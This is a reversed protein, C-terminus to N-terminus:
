AVGPWAFAGRIRRRWIENVGHEVVRGIASTAHIIGVDTVIAVHQPEKDFAMWLVDGLRAEPVPIGVLERALIGGMARPDPSRGYGTADFCTLGLAKGVCAVLGACDVGHGMVRGQHHFPTGLWKRAEAVIMERTVITASM